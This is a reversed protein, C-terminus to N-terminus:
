EAKKIPLTLQTISGVQPLDENLSIMHQQHPVAQELAKYFVKWYAMRACNNQASDICKEDIKKSIKQIKAVKYLATISTAKAWVDSSYAGVALTLLIASLQYYRM